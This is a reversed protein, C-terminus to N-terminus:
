QDRDPQRPANGGGGRRRPQDNNNNDANDRGRGRGPGQDDAGRTPLADVQKENLLAKIKDVTGSELDNRKTRLEGMPGSDFFGGPGGPGGGRNGGGRNNNGQDNNGGRRRNMMGSFSFNMEQDEQAKEMEKQLNEMDRYYSDRIATLGSTQEPTLDKLKLAAEVVRTSYQERYIQPFSDRKFAKEFEAKKDEPIQTDLQSFYRRNVDRVKVAAERGKKIWEDAKEPDSFFDRIKEQIETQMKNREILERDLDVEYQDLTPDLAARQDQALKLDDVLKFLDVREGSMLGRGITTERRRMREFKPWKAAQEDTLVAKFDGLFSAEMEDRSKQWAAMKERMEGFLEPSREERLQERIADQEERVKKAGGMFQQQYADFLAKVADKQSADLGFLKAFGELDRSSVSPEYMQAGGFGGFGGPGGPGRGQAMANPVSVVALALGAAAVWAV